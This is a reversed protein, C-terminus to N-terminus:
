SGSSTERTAPAPDAPPAGMVTPAPGTVVRRVTVVPAPRVTPTYRIVVLGTEPMTPMTALTEVQISAVADPPADGGVSAIPPTTAPTNAVAVVATGWTVSAATWAAVGALRSIPLRRPAM